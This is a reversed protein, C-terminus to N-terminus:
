LCAKIALVIYVKCAHLLTNNASSRKQVIHRPNAEETSITFSVSKKVEYLNMHISVHDIMVRLLHMHIVIPM